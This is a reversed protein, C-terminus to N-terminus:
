VKIMCCGSLEKVYSTDDETDCDKEKGASDQGDLILIETNCTLKAQVWSVGTGTGYM